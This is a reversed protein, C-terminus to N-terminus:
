KVLRRNISVPNNVFPTYHMLTLVNTIRKTEFEEKSSVPTKEVTEAVPHTLSKIKTL